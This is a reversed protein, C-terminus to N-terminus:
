TQESDEPQHKCSAVAVLPLSEVETVVRADESAVITAREIGPTGRADCGKRGITADQRHTARRFHHSIYLKEIHHRQAGGTGESFGCTVVRCDTVNGDAAIPTENGAQQSTFDREPISSATPRLLDVRVPRREPAAFSNAESM